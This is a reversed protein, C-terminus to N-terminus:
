SMHLAIVRARSINQWTKCSAAYLTRESISNSLFGKEEPDNQDSYIGIQDSVFYYPNEKLLVRIDDGPNTKQVLSLYGGKELETIIGPNLSLDIDIIGGSDEFHQSEGHALNFDNNWINLSDTETELELSLTGLSKKKFSKQFDKGAVEEPLSGILDLNLLKHEAQYNAFALGLNPGNELAERPILQRAICASSMDGEYWPSITGIMRAYAPNSNAGLKTYDPSQNERVRSLDYRYFLGKFAKNSTSYANFFNLLTQSKETDIQDLPISGFFTGSAGTITPDNTIRKLNMQRLSAKSPNSKLISAEGSKLNFQDSFVQSFLSLTPSVDIMVARNKGSPDEFDLSSELIEAWTGLMDDKETITQIGQDQYLQISHVKVSLCEFNMTGYYNWYGPCNGTLPEQENISNITEYFRHYNSDKPYSGLPCINWAKFDESTRIDSIELYANDNADYLINAKSPPLTRKATAIDKETDLYVRPPLVVTASIPDYTVLPYFYNNNGTAPDISTEGSFHIRPFDFQSM